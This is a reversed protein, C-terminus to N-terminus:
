ESSKVWRLVVTHTSEVKASQRLKEMTSSKAHQAAVGVKRGVAVDLQGIPDIEVVRGETKASLERGVAPQHKALKCSQYVDADSNQVVMKM